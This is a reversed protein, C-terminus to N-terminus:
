SSCSYGPEFLKWKVCQKNKGQREERMERARRIDDRMESEEVRSVFNKSSRHAKNCLFLKKVETDIFSSVWLVATTIRALVGYLLLIIFDPITPIMRRDGNSM